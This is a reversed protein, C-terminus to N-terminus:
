YNFNLGLTYIRIGPYGGFDIGRLQPNNGFTVAEPDFGPYKTLTILNQGALYTRLSVGSKFDFTYGLNVNKLRIFSGDFVQRDSPIVRAGTDILPAPHSVGTTRGLDPNYSVQGSPGVELPARWSDNFASVHGNVSNNNGFLSWSDVWFIDGGQQATILVSLDWNKYRFNNTIAVNFDPNPDGIKVYDDFNIEQIALPNGNEDLDVSNNIYRIEGPAAGRIGSSLAEDWDAYIGDTQAGWFIGLPQGVMFMSPNAQQFGVNPGLQFDLNSNLSVLKNRNRFFNGNISWGFDTKDIIDGGISIEIGRNEVSGFNDVISQFGNSAPLIVNQLLDQTLKYYAEVTLNIKSDFLGIDLAANYQDTTEWTLNDNALNSEFFGTALQNDFNYRLPSLLALSQFPAIPNSGTRGYSMRLRTSSLNDIDKLFDEETLMWSFAVSPFIASQNNKSFKSSADVRANVDVFYKKKFSYGVRMLGSALSFERFRAIPVLIDTASQFEYFSTADSGFGFAQNFMSRVRNREITGIVIADIKHGNFNNRYRLNAEGYVKQNELTSQTAQGNNRRGRTTFSPYYSDRNSRQFNFAGRTTATFRPSLRATIAVNQLLNINQKMDIVETALTFPNSVIFGDNLDSYVTDDEGPSLLGFVPQFRLTQSTVSRQNFFEGNGVSSAHGKNHAINTKSFIDVKNNFAKTRANINYTFRRNKTNLIVGEMDQLGFSMLLNRTATGSRYSLNYNNSVAQRFVLNQWNNDVGRSTAFPLSFNQLEAFNDPTLAQTGDFVLGARGPDTIRVYLQNIARQNMYDEFQPGNMVNIPNNVQTIFNDVTFTINDRGGETAGDKTTVLVVGNAGRAGYMATAAADKLVEIKEIDNPNLFALSGQAQGSNQNGQADSIPDIPIGDVVYLPENGGLISNTGRISVSIGGGPEANEKVVVGAVQGQLLQEVNNSRLKKLQESNVQSISGSLDKKSIDFYGVSILVEDLQDSDSELYINLFEESAEVEQTRMGLFSIVITSGKPARLQFNGDFDSITATNTGKLEINAGPLTIDTDKEYIVGRVTIVDQAYIIGVFFLFTIFIFRKM